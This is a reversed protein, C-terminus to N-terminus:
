RDSQGRLSESHYDFAWSLADVSLRQSHDRDNISQPELDALPSTGDRRRAKSTGTAEKEPGNADDSAKQDTRCEGRLLQEPISIRGDILKDVCM